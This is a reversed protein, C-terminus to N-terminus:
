SNPEPSRLDEVLTFFEGLSLIGDTYLGFLKSFQVLSNSSGSQRLAGPIKDLFFQVEAKAFSRLEDPM